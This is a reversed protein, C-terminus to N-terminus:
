LNNINKIKKKFKSVWEKFSKKKEFIPVQNCNINNIIRIFLAENFIPIPRM